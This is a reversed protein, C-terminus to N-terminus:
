LRIINLTLSGNLTGEVPVQTNLRVAQLYIQGISTDTTIQSSNITLPSYNSDFLGIGIGKAAGASTDTNALTTGEADDALGNLVIAVKGVCSGGESPMINYELATPATANQGQIPLDALQGNLTVTSQATYVTCETHDGVISCHVTVTASHDQAQSAGAMFLSALTLAMFTKKM